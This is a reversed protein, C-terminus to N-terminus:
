VPQSEIDKQYTTAQISGKDADLSFRKAEIIALVSRDDNLLVYDLFRNGSTEEEDKYPEYRKLKFDSKISNIERRIYEEKWGADHLLPDIIKERTERESLDM